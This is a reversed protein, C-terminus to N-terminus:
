GFYTAFTTVECSSSSSPSLPALFPTSTILLTAKTRVQCCPIISALLMLRDSKFNKFQIKRVEKIAELTKKGEEESVLISICYEGSKNFKTTPIFIASYGLVEGKATVFDVYATSKGVKIDM